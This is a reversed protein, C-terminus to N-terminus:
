RRQNSSTTQLISRGPTMHSGIGGPFSFSQGADSGWHGLLRPKLHEKMLPKEPLPNEKLYLMGLCLYLTANFYKTLKDLEDENLPEGPVTSRTETYATSQGQGYTLSRQELESSM